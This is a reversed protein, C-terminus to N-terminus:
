FRNQGNYTYSSWSEKAEMEHFIKKYGKVKLRKTDKCRFHTEESVWISTKQQQHITKSQKKIWEAVRPRKNPSNVGNVNIIIISLYMTKTMKNITKQSNQLEETGKNM